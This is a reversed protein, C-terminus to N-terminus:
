KLSVLFEAVARLDADSLKGAPLAPMKAEPKKSKPDRVYQMLWEVTHTQDKGVKSLDPGQKRMMGGPGGAFPLGQPPPGEAVGAAALLVTAVWWILITACFGAKRFNM